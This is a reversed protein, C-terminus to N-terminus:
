SHSVPNKLVWIQERRFNDVLVAWLLGLGAVMGPTSGSLQALDEPTFLDEFHLSISSFPFPSGKFPHISKKHSNRSGALGSETM